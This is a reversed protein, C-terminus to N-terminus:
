VPLLHHADTHKRIQSAGFYLDNRPKLSHSRPTSPIPSYILHRNGEKTMLVYCLPMEVM